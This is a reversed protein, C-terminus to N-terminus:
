KTLEKRLETISHLAKKFNETNKFSYVKKGENFRDDYTYYDEGIAYSIAVALSKNKLIYYEQEKYM